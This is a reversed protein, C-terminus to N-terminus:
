HGRPASKDRSVGTVDRSPGGKSAACGSTSPTLIIRGFCEQIPKIEAPTSQSIDGLEQFQGILAEWCERSMTGLGNRRTADTEISPKQAEAIEAFTELQHMQQNVAKPEDLYSRWGERVAAVMAKARDPNKRLSGRSVALVTTYPDYGIKSVVFVQAISAKPARRDTRFHSLTSPHAVYFHFPYRSTPSAPLVVLGISL